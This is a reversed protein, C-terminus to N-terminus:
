AQLVCGPHQMAPCDTSVSGKFPTSMQFTSCIVDSAFRRLLNCWLAVPLVLIVFWPLVFHPLGCIFFILVSPVRSPGPCSIVVYIRLDPIQDTWLSANSAAHFQYFGSCPYSNQDIKPASTDGFTDTPGRSRELDFAAVMASSTEAQSSM